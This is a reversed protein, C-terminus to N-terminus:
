AGKFKNQQDTFHNDKEENCQLPLGIFYVDTNPPLILVQTYETWRAHLWIRTDTEESNSSLTPEPQRISVNGGEVFWATDTLHEDEFGGAAYFKQNPSLHPHINNLFYETLFCVLKRKCQRCNLFNERWKPPLKTAIGFNDCIHGAMVIAIQDRRTQEFYKPTAKLRRPNDFILHVEFSGRSFHPILHRKM